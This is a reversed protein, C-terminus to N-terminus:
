VCSAPSPTIIPRECRGGSFLQCYHPRAQPSSRSSGSATATESQRRPTPRVRVLRSHAGTLDSTTQADAAVMALLLEPQARTPRRPEGLPAHLGPHAPRMGVEVRRSCRTPADDVAAEVVADVLRASCTLEAVEDRRQALFAWACKSRAAQWITPDVWRSRCSDLRDM